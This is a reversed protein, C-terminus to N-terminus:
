RVLEVDLIDAPEFAEAVQAEEANLVTVDRLVKGHKLRINVRQYGMGSEPLQVLKEIWTKPLYITTM